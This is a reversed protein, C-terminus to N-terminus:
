ATVTGVDAGVIAAIEVLKLGEYESLILAERELPPLSAVGEAVESAKRGDHIDDSPKNSRSISNDKVVDTVVAEQSSNPFYKMALTRATSYLRIRLSTPAYSQLKESEVILSLFFDHTLNEAM